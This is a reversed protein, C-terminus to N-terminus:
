LTAVFIIRFSIRSQHHVCIQTSRTDEKFRFIIRLCRPIRVFDFTSLLQPVTFIPLTKSLAPLTTQALTVASKTALSQFAVRTIHLLSEACKQALQFYPQCAFTQLRFFHDQLTAMAQPRHICHILCPIFHQTSMNKILFSSPVACKNSCWNNRELLRLLTLLNLNIKIILLHNEVNRYQWHTQLNLVYFNMESWLRFQQM